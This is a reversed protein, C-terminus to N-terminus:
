ETLGPKGLLNGDVYRKLLYGWKPSNINLARIFGGDERSIARSFFIMGVEWFLVEPDITEIPLNLLLMQAERLERKSVKDLIKVQNQLEKADKIPLRNLLAKLASKHIGKFAKALQDMGLDRFFALLEENKIFYLHHLNIEETKEPAALAPFQSEFRTRIVEVLEPPIKLCEETKPLKKRLSVKIHDLVYKAKDGPLNRLILGLTQPRENKLVELFWGPDIDGTPAAKQSKLLKKLEGVVMRRREKKPISLLQRTAEVLPKEFVEPVFRFLEFANEEDSLSAIYVVVKLRPELHEVSPINMKLDPTATFRAGRVGKEQESLRLSEAGRESEIL